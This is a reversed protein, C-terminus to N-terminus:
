RPLSMPSRTRMTPLSMASIWSRRRLGITVNRKIRSSRKRTGCSWNKMDREHALEMEKIREEQELRKLGQKHELDLKKMGGEQGSLVQKLSTELETNLKMKIQDNEWVFRKMVQEHELEVKRM